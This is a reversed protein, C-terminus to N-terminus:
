RSAHIRFTEYSLIIVSSKKRENRYVGKAL